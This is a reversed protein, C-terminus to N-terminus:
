GMRHIVTRPPTLPNALISLDPKKPQFDPIELPVKGWTTSPELILTGRPPEPLIRLRAGARVVLM